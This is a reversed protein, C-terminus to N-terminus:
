PVFTVVNIKLKVKGNTLKPTGKKTLEENALITSLLQM